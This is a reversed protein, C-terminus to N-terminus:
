RVGNSFHTLMALPFRQGALADEVCRLVMPSRHRHGEARLEEPTLWLARAIGEDLPREPHHLLPEALFAFRLFCYDLEAPQYEYVGLLATPRVEWGTEELAERIAGHILTEGAEWHGSPQNIVPAGNVAEEVFLFRGDREVVCAVTVHPSWSM